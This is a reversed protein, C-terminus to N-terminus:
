RNILVDVTDSGTVKIYLGYVNGNFSLLPADDLLLATNAPIPVVNILTFTSTATGSPPNDQLFLSVNANASDHINTLLISKIGKTNDGPKILEQSLGDSATINHYATFAM